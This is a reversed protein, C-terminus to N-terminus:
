LEGREAAFPRPQDRASRPAAAGRRPPHHPPHLPPRLGEGRRQPSPIGDKLRSCATLLRGPCARPTGPPLLSQPCCILPNFDSAM